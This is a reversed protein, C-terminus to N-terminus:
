FFRLVWNLVTPNIYSEVYCGALLVSFGAGSLLVYRMLAQRKTYPRKVIGNDHAFLYQWMGESQTFSVVFLPVYLVYQPLVMALFLFTGKVGYTLVCSSLIFGLSAGCWVAICWYLVAGILLLGTLILLIYEAGRKELVYYFLARRDTLRQSFGSLVTDCFLSSKAYYINHYVITLVCAAVFAAGFLLGMRRNRKQSLFFLM